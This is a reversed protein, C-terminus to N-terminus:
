KTIQKDNEQEFEIENVEDDSAVQLRAMEEKLQQDEYEHDNNTM